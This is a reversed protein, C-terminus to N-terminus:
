FISCPACGQKKEKFRINAAKNIRQDIPKASQMTGEEKRLLSQSKSGSITMGADVSHKESTSSEVSNNFFCDDLRDSMQSPFFVNSHALNPGTSPGNVNGFM